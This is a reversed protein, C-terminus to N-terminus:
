RYESIRPQLGVLVLLAVAIAGVVLAAVLGGLDGAAGSTTSTFTQQSGGIGGVLLSDLNASVAPLDAPSTGSAVAVAGALDGGKDLQRIQDHLRGYAAFATTARALRARESTGAGPGSSSLLTRLRASGTGYDKQYSGVSDRTLLTLEDDARVELALIRAGTFTSVPRSGDVLATNVGSDQAALAATFWIGLVAVVVTAAVLAVNWTRRFHRSMWRQVLVLAGILAVFLIAAIAVAWLAVANGQDAALTKGEAAYVQTAAPLLATRMLNNAEALYAAALPYSAQRENFDATEVIGTYVPLDVSLTKISAAVGPDSGAQQAAAALDTSALAIDNEYRTRLATPELRGQLFSAAATTDADSLSTDIAQATVMLPEASRWAASTASQRGAVALSAVVGTAVALLALGVAAIRLKAPTSRRGIVVVPNRSM